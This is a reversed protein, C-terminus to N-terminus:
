KKGQRGLLPKYAEWLLDEYIQMIALSENKVKIVEISLKWDPPFWRKLHLSYTSKPKELHNKMREFFHISSGVYICNEKNENIKKAINNESPSRAMQFGDDKAQQYFDKIKNYDFNIDACLIYIASIQLESKKDNLLKELESINIPNPFINSIELDNKSNLSNLQKCKENKQEFIIKEIKLFDM